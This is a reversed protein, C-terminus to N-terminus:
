NLIDVLGFNDKRQDLAVCVRPIVPPSRVLQSLHISLPGVLFLISFIHPLSTEPVTLFALILLTVVRVALAALHKSKEKM